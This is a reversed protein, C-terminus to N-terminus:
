VRKPVHAEILHVTIRATALHASAIAVRVREFRRISVGRKKLLPMYTRMGQIQPDDIMVIAERGATAEEMVEGELSLGIRESAWRAYARDAYLWEIKAVEAELLTIQPTIRQLNSLLYAKQKDNKQLIAKLLRHLMLDSYRRIPSTFHTYKEFGLGFHGVNDYTYQARKLSRILLRDVEERLDLRKAEEQILEITKHITKQPSIHIGIESLSDLLEIQSKDDPPEHTRFIGFPFYEAAACNALLMCEEILQHSFTEEAKRTHTLYLHENLELKIEPNYFSFGKVLRKRRLERIVKKLPLLWELTPKDEEDPKAGELLEDIRDYHYRHRSHIISEYLEYDVVNCGSDLQLKFTFALRDVKPQLSCMKESLERPLMPISKHPLYVTFGRKRAEKDIPGFDHVYATVDAIAVYLVNEDPNYYIADDYDKADIPDITIFPLHTLDKRDPFLTKDVEMGHSKAEQIQEASFYDIRGFRALVIAEDVAPDSLIGLIDAIEGTKPDITVVTEEPLEQLSKQKTSVPLPFTTDIDLVEARRGKYVIYGIPNGLKTEAVYVVKAAGRGRRQGLFRAIVLDGHAADKLDSPLVLLDQGRTGMPQLYGNNKKRGFSPKPLFLTGIILDHDLKLFPRDKVIGAKILPYLLKLERKDLANQEVGSQLKLLLDRM